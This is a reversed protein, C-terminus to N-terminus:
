ACGIAFLGATLRAAMTRAIAARSADPADKPPKRGWGAAARAFLQEFERRALPHRTMARHYPRGRAEFLDGYELNM